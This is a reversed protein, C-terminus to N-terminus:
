SKRPSRPMTSVLKNARLKRGEADFTFPLYCFFNGQGHKSNKLKTNPIKHMALILKTEDQSGVKPISLLSCFAFIYIKAM